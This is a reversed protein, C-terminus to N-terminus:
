FKIRLSVFSLYHRTLLFTVFAINYAFSLVGSSDSLAVRCEPVATFRYNMMFILM